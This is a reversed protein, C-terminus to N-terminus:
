NKHLMFLSYDYSLFCHFSCVNNKKWVFIIPHRFVGCDCGTCMCSVTLQKEMVKSAHVLAKSTAVSVPDLFVVHRRKAPLQSLVDQKLRRYFVHVHSKIIGKQRLNQVHVSACEFIFHAWCLFIVAAIQARNRTQLRMIFYSTMCCQHVNLLQSLPFHDNCVM